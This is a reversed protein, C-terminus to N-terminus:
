SKSPESKLFQGQSNTMLNKLLYSISAGGSSILIVEFEPWTPLSNQSFYVGLGSFLTTLVTLLLGKGLDKWNLNLFNSM